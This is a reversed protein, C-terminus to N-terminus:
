LKIDKEPSDLNNVKNEELGRGSGGMDCGKDSDAEQDVGGIESFYLVHRHMPTHVHTYIHTCTHTGHTHAHPLFLHISCLWGSCGPGVVSEIHGGGSEEWSQDQIQGGREGGEM